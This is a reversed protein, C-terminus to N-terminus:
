RFTASDFIRAIEDREFRPMLISGSPNKLHVQPDGAVLAGIAEAQINNERLAHLIREADNAEVALLLAGSSITGLPDIGFLSCVKQSLISIFIRSLNVHIACGTAESMEWLASSIGGETPDHMATVKGASIAIQADTLVSIGPNYLYERATQLEETSLHASLREPFERALLATTEIAIGKTLILQNGPKANRPLVVTDKAIEAMMSTNVITRPIDYTVETHGSIISIGLHDAAASIQRMLEDIRAPTADQKSLLATIMVWRPVAGTTAIDNAAIQIAYWGLDDTAFTIPETKVILYKDGFDLIASDLGIGPGQIVRPDTRNLKTLLDRLYNNPLKGVPFTKETM